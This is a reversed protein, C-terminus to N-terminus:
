LFLLKKRSSSLLITNESSEADAPPQLYSPISFTCQGITQTWNTRPNFGNRQGKHGNDPTMIVITVNDETSVTDGMTFNKNSGIKISEVLDSDKLTDVVKGNADYFVIRNFGIIEFKEKIESCKQGCLEKASFPIRITSEPSNSPEADDLSVPEIVNPEYIGESISQGACGAFFMLLLFLSFVFSKSKM